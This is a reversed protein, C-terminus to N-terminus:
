QKSWRNIIEDEFTDVLVGSWEQRINAFMNGTAIAKEKFNTSMTFRSQDTNHTMQLRYRNEPYNPV